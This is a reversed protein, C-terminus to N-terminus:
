EGGSGCTVLNMLEQSKLPCQATLQTTTAKRVAPETNRGGKWRSELRWVETATVKEGTRGTRTIISDFVFHFHFFNRSQKLPTESLLLLLHLHEAKWREQFDKATNSSAKAIVL